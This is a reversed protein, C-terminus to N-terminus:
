RNGLYPNVKVTGVTLVLRNAIARNSLGQALLRLVEIERATLPEVLERDPQEGVSGLVHEGVTAGATLVALEAQLTAMTEELDAAEERQIAAM